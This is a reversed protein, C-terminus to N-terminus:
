SENYEKKNNIYKWNRIDWYIDQALKENAEQKNEVHYYAVAREIFRLEKLLLNDLLSAYSFHIIRNLVRTACDGEGCSSGQLNLADIIYQMKDSDEKSQIIANPALVFNLSEAIFSSEDKALFIQRPAKFPKFAPLIRWKFCCPEWKFEEGLNPQIIFDHKSAAAACDDTKLILFTSSCIEAKQM